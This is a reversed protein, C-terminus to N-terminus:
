CDKAMRNGLSEVGEVMAYAGPKLFHSPALVSGEMGVRLAGYLNGM